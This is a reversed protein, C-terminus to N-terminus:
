GECRKAVSAKRTTLRPLGQGTKWSKCSGGQRSKLLTKTTRKLGWKCTVDASDRGQCIGDSTAAGVVVDGTEESGDHCSDDGQKGQPFTTVPWCPLELLLLSQAMRPRQWLGLGPAPTPPPKWVLGAFPANFLCIFKCIEGSLCM